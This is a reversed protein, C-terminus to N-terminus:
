NKIAAVDVKQHKFKELCHRSCFYYTEGDQEYPIFADADDTSMSCVPDVYHKQQKEHDKM